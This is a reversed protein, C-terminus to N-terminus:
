GDIIMGGGTMAGSGHLGRDLGGPGLAEVLDVAWGLVEQLYLHARGEGTATVTLSVGVLDLVRLGMAEAALHIGVVFDDAAYGGLGVM